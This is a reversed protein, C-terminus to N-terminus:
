QYVCCSHTFYVCPCLTKSNKETQLKAGLTVQGGKLKLMRLKIKLYLPRQGKEETNFWFTQSYPDCRNKGAQNENVRQQLQGRLSDGGFM